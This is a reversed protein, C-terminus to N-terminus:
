SRGCMGRFKAPLRVVRNGHAGLEQGLKVIEGLFGNINAVTAHVYSPRDVHVNLSQSALDGGDSNTTDTAAFDQPTKYHKLRISESPTKTRVQFAGKPIGGLGISVLKLAVSKGESGKLLAM